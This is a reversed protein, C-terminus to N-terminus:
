GCGEVARESWGGDRTGDGKGWGGFPPRCCTLSGWSRAAATAATAVRACAATRATSPAPSRQPTTVPPPDPVYGRSAPLPTKVSTCGPAPRLPAEAKPPGCSKHEPQPSARPRHPCDPRDLAAPATPPQIPLQPLPPHRLAAGAAGARAALRGATSWLLKWAWVKISSTMRRFSEWLLHDGPTAGKWRVRGIKEMACALM